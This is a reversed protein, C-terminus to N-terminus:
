QRSMTMAITSASNVLGITLTDKAENFFGQGLYKGRFTPFPQGGDVVPCDTADISFEVINVTEDPVGASGSSFACGESDSGTIVGESDVVMDFTLTVPDGTDTDTDIVVSEGRWEGVVENLQIPMAMLDTKWVTATYVQDVQDVVPNEIFGLEFSNFAEIGTFLTGLGNSTSDDVSLEGFYSLKLAQDPVVEFDFENLDLDTVEAELTEQRLYIAGSLGANFNTNTPDLSFGGADGELSGTTALNYGRYIITAENEKVIMYLPKEDQGETGSSYVGEWIGDYSVGAVNEETSDSDGGCATLSLIIASLLARKAASQTKNKYEFIDM